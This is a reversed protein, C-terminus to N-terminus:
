PLGIEEKHRELCTLAMRVIDDQSLEQTKAAQILLKLLILQEKTTKSVSVTTKDEITVM